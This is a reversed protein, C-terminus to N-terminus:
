YGFIDEAKLWVPKGFKELTKVDADSRRTVVGYHYKLNKIYEQQFDAIDKLTLGQIIDYIRQKRDYDVGMDQADVYSWLVSEKTTRNARLSTLMAEKALQLDAESQPMNTIIDTFVDVATLLKDTQTGIFAVYYSREDKYSPEVTTSYASYALSRRERLEQFAICNMGGSGFYQNYVSSLALERDAVPYRLASYLYLDSQNDDFDVLYVCPETVDLPTFNGETPVPKLQEPIRHKEKLTTKVEELARPGYYLVRHQYHPLEHIRKVLTQPNLSTLEDQPVISAVCNKAGYTMYRLLRGPYNSKETKADAREKLIDGVLNTYAPENVQAKALLQELLTVAEDMYEDLGDLTIYTRRKGCTVKMDCAIRFFAQKIEEPTMDDTGLYDLYRAAFGLLKDQNNGMDFVYSLRFLGNTENRKYLLPLGEQMTDQTLDKSYDVFLPEIPKVKTNMIDLLFQSATDRNAEIPTLQPKEIKAQNSSTSQLKRVTVCNEDCLYKRALEQLEQKTVKSLQNIQQVEDEWRTGNIYSDLMMDACSHYDEAQQILSKRYNNLLAQLMEDSFDGTKLKEIENLIIIKLEDLTQGQKPTAMVTLLSYDRMASIGGYSNAVVQKQNLDLDILGTNGNYLVNSLFALK